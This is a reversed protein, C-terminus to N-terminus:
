AEFLLDLPELRVVVDARDVEDFSFNLLGLPRRLIKEVEHQAGRSTLGASRRRAFPKFNGIRLFQEDVGRSLAKSPKTDVILDALRKAVQGDDPAIYRVLDRLDTLAM